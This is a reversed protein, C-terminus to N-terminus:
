APLCSGSRVERASKDSLRKAQRLHVHDEKMDNLEVLVADHTVTLRALEVEASRVREQLFSGKDFTFSTSQLCLLEVDRTLEERQTCVELYQKQLVEFRSVLDERSLTSLEAAKAHQM